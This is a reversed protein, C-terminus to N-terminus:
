PVDLHTFCQSQDQSVLTYILVISHYPVKECLAFHIVLMSFIYVLLKPLVHSLSSQTQAKLHVILLHMQGVGHCSIHCLRQQFMQIIQWKFNNNNNYHNTM